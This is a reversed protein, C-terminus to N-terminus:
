GKELDVVEDKPLAQLDSMYNSSDYRFPASEDNGLNVRIRVHGNCEIAPYFRQRPM